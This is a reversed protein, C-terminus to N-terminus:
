VPYGQKHCMRWRSAGGRQGGSHLFLVLYLLFMMLSSLCPVPVDGTVCVYFLLMGRSYLCLSSPTARNIVCGGGALEVM